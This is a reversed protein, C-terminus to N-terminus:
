CAGCFVHLFQSKVVIFHHDLPPQFVMTELWWLDECPLWSPYHDWGLALSAHKPGAARGLHVICWPSGDLANQIDLDAGFSIRASWLPISYIYIFVWCFVHWKWVGFSVKGHFLKTLRRPPTTQNRVLQEHFVTKTPLSCCDRRKSWVFWCGGLVMSASLCSGFIIRCLRVAQTLCIPCM